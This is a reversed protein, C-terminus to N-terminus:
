AAEVIAQNRHNGGCLGPAHNKRRITDDSSLLPHHAPRPTHARTRQRRKRVPEVRFELPQSVAAEGRLRLKLVARQEDPRLTAFIRSRVRFSTRGFHPLEVAEPLSLAIARFEDPAM